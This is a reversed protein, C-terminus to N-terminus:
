SDASGYNIDQTQAPVLILTQNGIPIQVYGNQQIQQVIIALAYDIGQNQNSIVYSNIAPKVAFVYAIVGLLVLIVIILIAVLLSKKDGM